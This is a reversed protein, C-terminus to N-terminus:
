PLILRDEYKLFVGSRAWSPANWSDIAVVSGLILQGAYLFAFSTPAVILEVKLGKCTTRYKLVQTDYHVQSLTPTAFNFYWGDVIVPIEFRVMSDLHSRITLYEERCQGSLSLPFFLLLLIKKM